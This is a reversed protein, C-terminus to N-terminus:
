LRPGMREQARGADINPEDFAAHAAVNHGIMCSGPRDACPARRPDALPSRAFQLGNDGFSLRLVRLAGVANVAEQDAVPKLRIQGVWVRLLEQGDAGFFGVARGFGHAVQRPTVGLVKDVDYAAAHDDEAGAGIFYSM